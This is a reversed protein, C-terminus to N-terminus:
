LNKNVVLSSRGISSKLKTQAYTDLQYHLGRIVGYTSSAQNDQVFNITIGEAIFVKQNYSEFFYGREDGWIKPEFILLGPFETKIFPM